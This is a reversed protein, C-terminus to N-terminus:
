TDILSPRANIRLDARIGPHSRLAELSRTVDNFWDVKREFRRVRFYALGDLFRQERGCETRIKDLKGRFRVPEATTCFAAVLGVITTFDM